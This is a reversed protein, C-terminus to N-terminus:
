VNKFIESFGDGDARWVVPSCMLSVINQHFCSCSFCFLQDHPLINQLVQNMSGSKKNEAEDDDEEHEATYKEIFKDYDYGTNLTCLSFIFM